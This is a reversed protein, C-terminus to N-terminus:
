IDITAKLYEGFVFCVRNENKQQVADMEFIILFFYLFTWYQKMNAIIEYLSIKFAVKM